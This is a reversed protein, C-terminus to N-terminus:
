FAFKFGLTTQRSRQSALQVGWSADISFREPVVTWRIGFQTWSAERDDGFIEAMLDIAGFAGIREVAFGFLSSTRHAAHERQWGLNAHFVWDGQPLSAVGRFETTEHRFGDAQRREGGLTYAVAFGAQDETLERVFTKGAIAASTGREDGARERGAGIALQTHFGVGCGAQAWQVNASPGHMRGAFSEIECEGVSLTGADETALPRGAWAAPMCTYGSLTAILLSRRIGTATEKKNFVIGKAIRRCHHRPFAFRSM